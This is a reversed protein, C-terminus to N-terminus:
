KVYQNYIERKTVGRDQAVKKMADMSKLGQGIYYEVHENISLDEWFNEKVVENNGEVIIVFEGRPSDIEFKEIINSLKDRIIEEHIKTMERALSVNRDGWADYMDKLTYRIKHPAEYFIMTRTENKLEELRERRNRKNMPMFGEFTFRGTTLGSVILASTAAVPGPVPSVTIGREIAMKVLEEGPDSIAPTGADSVLAVNKGEELLSVIYEGKKDENHRFFSTLTNKIEFHNLLKLTQRTDEAAIVDVEKLIRIARFTIDELNGIPTSVLYLTGAM